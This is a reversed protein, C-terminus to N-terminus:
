PVQLPYLVPWLRIFHLPFSRALVAQVARASRGIWIHARRARGVIFDSGLQLWLVDLCIPPGGFIWSSCVSEVLSSPRSHAAHFYQFSLSKETISAKSSNTNKENNPQNSRIINRMLRGTNDLWQLLRPWCM